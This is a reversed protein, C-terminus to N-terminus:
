CATFSRLLLWHFSLGLGHLQGEDNFVENDFQLFPVPYSWTFATAEWDWGREVILLGILKQASVTPGGVLISFV